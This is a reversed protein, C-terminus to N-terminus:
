WGPRALRGARRLFRREEPTLRRTPGGLPQRFAVEPMDDQPPAALLFTAFQRHLAAALTRLETVSPLRRGEAWGRIDSEDLKTAEAM